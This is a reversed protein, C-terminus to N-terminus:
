YVSHRLLWGLKNRYGPKISWVYSLRAHAGVEPDRRTKRRKRQKKVADNVLEKPVRNPWWQDGELDSLMEEIIQRVFNELCYFEVYHRAMDVAESKLSEPLAKLHSLADYRKANSGHGINLQLKEQLQQLENEIAICNLTLFKIQNEHNEM